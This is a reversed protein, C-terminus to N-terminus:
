ASGGLRSRLLYLFFPAGLLATLIGVPLEAPAVCVRSLTDAATLVVAGGLASAPLLARHDPGLVLRVLHPVALGVFGITGTFAVSAGTGLAVFVVIRGKLQETDVGLLRAEEDGLALANLDRATRSLGFLCPLVFAAVAVVASWSAGNLSGLNWSSLERLQADDAVHTLLGVLAFAVANVAVGALLLDNVRTAGSRRALKWILSTTLLAGAFAAASPLVLVFPALLTAQWSDGVLVIMAAAAAAAGATVGVLGPDALPNRFLGQMAAGAVGLGAGTVVGLLARPLRIALLVQEPTGRAAEGSMWAELIRLPVRPSLRVAGVALALFFALALLGLLLLLSRGARDLRSM